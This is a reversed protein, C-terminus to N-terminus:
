QQEPWREHACSGGLSSMRSVAPPLRRSAGANDGSRPWPPWSSCGSHLSRTAQQQEAGGTTDIINLPSSDAGLELTWDPCTWFSSGRKSIQRLANKAINPSKYFKPTYLACLISVSQLISPAASHPM